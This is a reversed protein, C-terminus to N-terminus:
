LHPPHRVDMLVTQFDDYLIPKQLYYAPQGELDAEVENSWSCVIVPIQRTDTHMRLAILADKGRRDPADLEIMVAGPAERLVVELVDETPLIFRVSCAIKKAYREILYRFSADDGVVLLTPALGSTM